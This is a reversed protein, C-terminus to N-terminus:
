SVLAGLDPRRAERPSGAGAGTPAGWSLPGLWVGVARAAADLGSEGGEGWGGHFNWAATPLTTFPRHPGVSRPQRGGGPFSLQLQRTEKHIRTRARTWAAPEGM